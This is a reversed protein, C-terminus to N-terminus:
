KKIIRGSGTYESVIVDPNGFYNINGIAYLEVLLSNYAKVYVDGTGSHNVHVDNSELNQLFLWGNGNTYVYTNNSSGQINFDAPGTHQRLYIEDCVVNLNISGTGEFADITFNNFELIGESYIDGFGRYDIQKLNPLTLQVIIKTDYSRLYSCKNKSFIKLVNGQLETKINYLLNSGGTVMLSVNSDQKIILDINHNLDIKEITNSVERVETVINGNSKLCTSEKDCGYFLVVCCAIFIKFYFKM